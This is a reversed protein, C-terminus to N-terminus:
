SPRDWRGPRSTQGSISRPYAIAVPQVHATYSAIIARPLLMGVFDNSWVKRDAITAASAPAGVAPGCLYDVVRM